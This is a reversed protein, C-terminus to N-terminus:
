SCYSFNVVKRYIFKNNQKLGFELGYLSSVQFDVDIDVIKGFPRNENSFIKAGLLPSGPIEEGNNGIVATVLTDM